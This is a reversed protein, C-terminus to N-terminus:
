RPGRKCWGPRVKPNVVYKNRSLRCTVVVYGELAKKIGTLGIKGFWNALANEQIDSFRCLLCNDYPDNFKLQAEVAKEGISRLIKDKGIM